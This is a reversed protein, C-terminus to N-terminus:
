NSLLISILMRSASGKGCKWIFPRRLGLITTHLCPPISAEPTEAM